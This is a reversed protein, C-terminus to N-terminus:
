VFYLNVHKCLSVFYTKLAYRDKTPDANLVLKCLSDAAESPLCRQPVLPTEVHTKDTKARKRKGVLVSTKEQDDDENRSINLDKNGANPKPGSSSDSNTSSSSSSSSPTENQHLDRLPSEAMYLKPSSALDNSAQKLEYALQKRYCLIQEQM